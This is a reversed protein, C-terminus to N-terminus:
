NGEQEEVSPAVSIETVVRTLVNSDVKHMLDFKDSETFVRNGEADKAKLMLTRVLFEMDDDKASKLLKKKEAVTFPTAYLVCDWEPVHIEKTELTDFHAKANDLVSM